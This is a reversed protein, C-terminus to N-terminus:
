GRVHHRECAKYQDAAAARRSSRVQSDIALCILMFFFLISFLQAVGVPMTVFAEPYVIFVLGPGSLLSVTFELKPWSIISFNVAFVLGFASVILSSVIFM